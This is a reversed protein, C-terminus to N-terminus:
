KKGVAYAKKVDSFRHKPKYQCSETVLFEKINKM